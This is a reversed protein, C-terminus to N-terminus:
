GLTTQESPVVSGGTTHCTWYPWFYSWMDALGNEQVLVRDRPVTRDLADLVEVVRVRDDARLEKARTHAAAVTEARCRAVLDTWQPLPAPLEQRLWDTLAAAADAVVAPGQWVPSLDAAAANVQLVPVTAPLADWGAVPTEELRSGLAVVLDTERWLAAVAPPAYLGAVGCFLPH